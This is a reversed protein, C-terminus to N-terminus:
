PRTLMHATVVM